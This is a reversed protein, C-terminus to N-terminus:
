GQMKLLIQYGNPNKQSMKLMSVPDPDSDIIKQGFAQALDYRGIATYHLFDNWNDELEDAFLPVVVMSIGVLMMLFCRKHLM